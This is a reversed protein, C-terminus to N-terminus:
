IGDIQINSVSEEHELGDELLANMEQRSSDIELAQKRHVIRSLAGEKGTHGEWRELQTL